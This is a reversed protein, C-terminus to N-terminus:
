AALCGELIRGVFQQELRLGRIQVNEQMISHVKPHTIWDRSTSAHLQHHFQDQENWFQDLIFSAVAAHTHLHPPRPLAATATHPASALRIAALGCASPSQSAPCLLL